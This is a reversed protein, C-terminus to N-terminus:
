EQVSACHTGHFFLSPGGTYFLILFYNETPFNFSHWWRQEVSPIFNSFTTINGWSATQPKLIVAKCIRLYSNAFHSLIYSDFDKCIKIEYKHEPFKTTSLIFSEHKPLTHRSLCRTFKSQRIFIYYLHIFDVFTCCGFNVVVCSVAIYIPNISWLFICGSTATLEIKFYGCLSPDEETSVDLFSRCYGAICIPDHCIYWPQDFLCFNM